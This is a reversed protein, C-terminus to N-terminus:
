FRTLDWMDHFSHSFIRVDAFKFGCDGIYGMNRTLVLKLCLFLVKDPCAVSFKTRESRKGESKLCMNKFM